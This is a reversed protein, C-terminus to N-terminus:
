RPGVIAFAAGQPDTVQVVWAGGPVEHPGNRVQGGAAVLRAQAADIGEAGFYALWAPRMDPAPLGMMGGIQQAGRAIIHYRGMPGMDMAQAEVWDFHRSYFALAAEPDATMLEHWNGHGSKQQDFAGGAGMPLPQLIGFVAGQPDALIAFRGTGPIDAPPAHIQGGDAAVAAATADADSVAFYVLWNPPVGEPLFESMGAVMVDGVSALHYVFEGMDVQQFQWGLVAAYFGSASKADPTSLEYWCPLGHNGDSM